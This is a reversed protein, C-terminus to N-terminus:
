KYFSLTNLALLAAAKSAVTAAGLANTPVTTQGTLVAALKKIERAAPSKPLELVVPNGVNISLTISASDDPVTHIATSNLVKRIASIPLEGAIGTGMVVIQLQEPSIDHALMFETHLKARHLSLLDPRMTVLVQESKALAFIQESHQIDETAIVVYPFLHQARLILDNCASPEIGRLDSFLKPGALLQIGSEHAALAQQFMVDDTGIAQTVLDYISHVPELKLLLALDGGRLQFDLLCCKGSGTAIAAALNAALISADSSVHCPVISITHARQKAHSSGREIRALCAAIENALDTTDELYDLAGARIAKLITSHDAISSVVVIRAQCLSKIHQILEIEADAIAPVAVFVIEDNDALQSLHRASASRLLQTDPCELKLQLLARQLRQSLLDSDSVIWNRM